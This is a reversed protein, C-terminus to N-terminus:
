GGRQHKAHKRLTERSIREGTEATWYEVDRLSVADLLLMIDIERRREDDCVPCPDFKLNHGLGHRDLLRRISHKHACSELLAEMRAIADISSDANSGRRGGRPAKALAQVDKGSGDNLTTSEGYSRTQRGMMSREHREYEQFIFCMACSCAIGQEKASPNHYRVPPRPMVLREVEELARQMTREASVRERESKLDRQTQVYLALFVDRWRRRTQHPVDKFPIHTM